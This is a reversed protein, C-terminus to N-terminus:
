SKAIANDIAVSTLAFLIKARLGKSSDLFLNMM